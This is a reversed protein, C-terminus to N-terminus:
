IKIKRSTVIFFGVAGILIDFTTKISWSILAYIRGVAGDYGLAEFGLVAMGHFAGAGGPTPVLMGLSGAAMFFITDSFTMAQTEQLAQMSCFTMLLWAGWIGLSYLWFLGQQRLRYITKIGDGMGIFFHRVKAIFPNSSLFKLAALFVVLGVVGAILLYIILKGKGADVQNLLTSLADAKVIFAALLLTGLLLVDVIRELIVTGILKNVPIKEARNLLTCRALEGSRPVLNNMCYGFAVSHISTWNHAKYGMPELMLNWRLGRIVTASYGIFFSIVIWWWNVHQLSPKLDKEWSIDKYLFWMLVAALALFLIYVAVKRFNSNM